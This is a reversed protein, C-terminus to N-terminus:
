FNVIDNYIVFIMLVLLLTIGVQQLVIKVKDPVPRRFIAEFLVFMLHGGDLGPFPLINLLALSVSLLAVFGLFSVAGSEASRNALQAIKIPGGVSKSFSVKGVIIQSINVLFLKTTGYVERISIPLAEILGYNEHVQPGTYGMELMVGIRGEETPTVKAEKIENQHKWTITIEKGANKQIIESLASFHVPNGNVALITDGAAMGAKAAPKGNDVVGIVPVLGVPMIGLREDVMNPIEAQPIKIVQPENGRIFQIELTPALNETFLLNEIDDWKNVPKNNISIIKDHVQFGVKEAVSNPKIYGIETVPYIVRGQYFIIGWFIIIALIVNMLVGASLVIAQQWLPKARFEWPQPERNLFETDLSEDIMGSIKVYGGIPVWSVCYDTEGIKKGFARPPFGISFTEVRMKFLKATIFHGFEHVLVLVGITIIFYFIMSVIEM